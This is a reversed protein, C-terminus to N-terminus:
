RARPKAAAAARTRAGRARPSKIRNRVRSATVNEGLWALYPAHGDAVPLAIVEPVEYAHLAVVRAKLAPFAPRTTKMLCLVEDSSQVAGEWRYVSRMTPLVQVCAALQEHVVAEAIRLAAARDGVAVLVVLAQPERNAM